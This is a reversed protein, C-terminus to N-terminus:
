KLSEKLTSCAVEPPVSNIYFGTGWEFGAVNSLRPMIEFHWHYHVMRKEIFPASHLVFSYPPDNLTKNLAKVASQFASALGALDSDETEDFHSSHRKPIIWLEYPFRPAYPCIVIFNGNEWLCREGGIENEFIDCFVCKERSIFYDYGTTIEIAVRYPVAPTAIIQSHSHEITAGAKEGRNGFVMAFKLNPNARLKHLRSKWLLILENLQELPMTAISEEHLPTNVIVEHVGFGSMMDFMGEGQRDLEEELSVVPNLSYFIRERWEPTNPARATDGAAFIESPTKNENGPCFPCSEKQSQVAASKLDSPRKGRDASVIVWRGDTPNRRLEPANM